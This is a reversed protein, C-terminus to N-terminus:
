LFNPNTPYRTDHTSYQPILYSVLDLKLRQALAMAQDIDAQTLTEALEGRAQAPALYQTLLSVRIDPREALWHLVPVTCCEFHGPMLLHRVLLAKGERYVQDMCGTVVAWYDPMGGIREGCSQPGTAPGFKFDPLYLDMAGDLLDLAADTLYFNSNLVAPM